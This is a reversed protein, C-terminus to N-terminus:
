AAIRAIACVKLQRLRSSAEGSIILSNKGSLTISAPKPLTARHGNDASVPAMVVSVNYAQRALWDIVLGRLATRVTTNPSCAM